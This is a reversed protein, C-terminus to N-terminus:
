RRCGSDQRRAAALPVPQWDADDAPALGAVPGARMRRDLEVASDGRLFVFQTRGRADKRELEFLLCPREAATRAVRGRIWGGGLTPVRVRVATGQPLPVALVEEAAPPPPTGASEAPGPSPDERRFAVPEFAPEPLGGDAPLMTFLIRHGTTAALRLRVVGTSDSAAYGRVVATDGPPTEAGTWGAPLWAGVVKTLADFREAVRRPERAAFVLCRVSPERTVECDYTGPLDVQSEHAGTRSSPRPVSQGRISAFGDDSARLLEGLAVAWAKRDTKVDICDGLSQRRARGGLHTADGEYRSLEEEILRFHRGQIMGSEWMLQAAWCEAELEWRQGQPKWLHGLTHHACEHLYIFIQTARSARANATQNWYIVPQGNVETATGAWGMSNDIIGRVPRDARDVCGDCPLPAALPRAPPLCLLALLVAVRAASGSM